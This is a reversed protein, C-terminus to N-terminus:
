SIKGKLANVPSMRAIKRSPLFSVLTASIFILFFTGAVLRFSYVPFITEAISIGFEDIGKTLQIGTSSTYLFIPIGYLSGVLSALLAYMSGEVTFLKAVQMRTMGLAIYTGIEKQRRFISLVQTDFIALLAIALLIMYIIFAGAREMGVAANLDQLLHEQSVFDWGEIAHSKYDANAIYMSAHGEFGTMGWLKKIPIWIQGNDISAMTSNFIGTITINAADFTGHKDRWRLMLEDGVLLKFATAMRKGIVAPIAATSEALVFGPIEVTKQTEEIGKLIVSVNRGSPFITASQVLVPTLNQCESETLVGHGVYYSLVDDPDFGAHQLQGHGYEWQIGDIRAQNQWGNIFANYFIIVVFTFSLVSVNLWTRLGSGLLNKFALKLALKM